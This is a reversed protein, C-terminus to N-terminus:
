IPTFKEEMSLFLNQAHLGAEHRRQLFIAMEEKSNLVGGGFWVLSVGCLLLGESAPADVRTSSM